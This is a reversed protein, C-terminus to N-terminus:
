DNTNDNNGNRVNMIMKIKLMKKIITIMVASKITIISTIITVMLIM